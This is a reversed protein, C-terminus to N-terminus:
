PRGPLRRRCDGVVDNDGPSRPPEGRRSPIDVLQYRLPPLALLRPHAVQRFLEFSFGDEVGSVDLVGIKLTHM